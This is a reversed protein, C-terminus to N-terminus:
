KKFGQKELFLDLEKKQSRLKSLADSFTGAKATATIGWEVLDSKVPKEALGKVTVSSRGSGISKTQYGLVFSGTIIGLALLAGLLIVARSSENFNKLFM